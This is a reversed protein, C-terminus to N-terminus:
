VENFSIGKFSSVFHIIFLFSPLGVIRVLYFFFFFILNPDFECNMIKGMIKEFFAHWCARSSKNIISCSNIGSIPPYFPHIRGDARQFMAEEGVGIRRRALLLKFIEGDARTELLAFM